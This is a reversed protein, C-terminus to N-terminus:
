CFQGRTQWPVEWCGPAAAKLCGYTKQLSLACDDSLRLMRQLIAQVKMETMYETFDMMMFLLRIPTVEQVPFEGCIDMRSTFESERKPM